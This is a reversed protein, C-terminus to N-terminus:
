NFIAKKRSALERGNPQYDHGAYVKVSEELSRYSISSSAPDYGLVPDIIISNRAEQDWIVYTLTFTNKDFFSKIKM